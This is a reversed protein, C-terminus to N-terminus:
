DAVDLRRAVRSAQWTCQASRLLEVLAQEIVEDRGIVHVAGCVVTDVTTVALRCLSVLELLVTRLRRRRKVRVARSAHCRLAALRDLLALLSFAPLLVLLKADGPSLSM